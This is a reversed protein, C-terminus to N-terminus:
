KYAITVVVANSNAPTNNNSAIGKVIVFSIGKSFRLGSPFNVTLGAGSTSAPIPYVAIPTDLAPNPATDKNYFKLYHITGSVNIATINGITGMTGKVVTSNDTAASVLTFPLYPTSSQAIINLNTQEQETLTKM